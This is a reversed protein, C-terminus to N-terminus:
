CAVAAKDSLVADKPNRTNGPVAQAQRPDGHSCKGSLPMLVKDIVHVVGDTASVDSRIVNADNVVFSGDENARFDVLSGELTPLRRNAM